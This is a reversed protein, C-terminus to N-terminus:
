ALGKGPKYDRIKEAINEPTQELEDAVIGSRLYFPEREELKETIYKRLEDRSYNMILPRSSSEEKLREFLVEERLRLYVTLGASNMLEMNDSFCPTGGGAAMVYNNKQLQDLLAKREKIRFFDEGYRMFIEPIGLKENREIIDDLDFFDCRLIGALKKGLTSKGSGMFGLLFIKMKVPM